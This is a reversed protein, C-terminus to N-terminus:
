ERSPAPGFFVKMRPIKGSLTDKFHEFCELVQKVTLPHFPRSFAKERSFLPITIETERSDVELATLKNKVTDKEYDLNLLRNVIWPDRKSLTEFLAKILDVLDFDVTTNIKTSSDFPISRREAWKEINRQTSKGNIHGQVWVIDRGYRDLINKLSLSDDANRHDFLKFLGIVLNEASNKGVAMATAQARSGQSILKSTEPNQNRQYEPGFYLRESTSQAISHKAPIM